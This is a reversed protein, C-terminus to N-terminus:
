SRLVAGDPIRLTTLAHRADIDVDGLCTVHGGVVVDGRIRLSTCHRLTPPGGPFRAEFDDILRFEPGLEVEPVPHPDVRQLSSTDDIRYRDSRILLLDATTKVPEFRRRPVLLAQAGDVAEVAAGMASELQLVPMSTPDTPDVTKQNVIVPLVRGPASALEAVIDLRVWLSNANFFRHRTVDAFAAEEGPAVMALERLILRGDEIRRAFHGGKRDNATRVCAEVVLPLGHDGLWTAIAPDCTAGLNDANSIFLYRIGRDRLRDLIGSAALSAFVDGHGPPCWELGPDAPWDVPELTDAVLRPVAGQRFHLPLGDVPLDPYAALAAVTPAHTRESDMFVLPVPVAYRQRLSLVHRVIVDLFTLGDRVVLLSKPGDLGMTTGLGGNLKVVAVQALARAATKDDVESAPLDPLSDIPEIAEEAITGRSGAAVALFHTTFHAITRADAGHQRMRALAAELATRHEAALKGGM